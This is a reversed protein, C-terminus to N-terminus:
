VHSMDPVAGVKENKAALAEPTIDLELDVDEESPFQPTHTRPSPSSPSPM